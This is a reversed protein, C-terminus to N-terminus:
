RKGGFFIDNHTHLDLHQVFMSFFHGQSSMKRQQQQQCFPTSCSLLVGMAHARDGAAQNKWEVPLYYYYYYLDIRGGPTSRRVALLSVRELTLFWNGCGM